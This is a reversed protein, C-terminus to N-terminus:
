AGSLAGGDASAAAPVAAVLKTERMDSSAHRSNVEICVSRWRSQKVESRARRRGPRRTGQALPAGILRDAM